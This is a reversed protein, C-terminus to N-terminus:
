LQVKLQCVQARACVCSCGDPSQQLVQSPICPLCGLAQPRIEGPGCFGLPMSKETATNNPPSIRHKM